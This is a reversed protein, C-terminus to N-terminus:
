PAKNLRARRRQAIAEDLRAEDAPTWVVPDYGSPAEASVQGRRIEEVFSAIRPDNQAAERIPLPAKTAPYMVMGKELFLNTISAFDIQAQLNTERTRCCFHMVTGGSLHDGNTASAISRRVDRNVSWCDYAHKAGTGAFRCDSDSVKQGHEFWINGSEMDVACIAFDTAVPPRPLIAQNPSVVWKKWQDILPGPGAFMYACEDDSAIKDFGTDDIFAVFVSSRIGDTVERFSWRSDTALMVKSKDYANTTM